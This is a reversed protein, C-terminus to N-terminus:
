WRSVGLDKGDSKKVKTISYCELLDNVVLHGIGVAM